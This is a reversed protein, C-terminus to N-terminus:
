ELDLLIRFGFDSIREGQIDKERKEKQNREKKPGRDEFRGRVKERGEIITASQEKGKLGGAANDCM